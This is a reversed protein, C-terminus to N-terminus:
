LSAVLTSQQECSLLRQWLLRYSMDQACYLDHGGGKGKPISLSVGILVPGRYSKAETAPQSWRDCPHSVVLSVLIM